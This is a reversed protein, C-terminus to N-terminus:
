EGVGLVRLLMVADAAHGDAAQATDAGQKALHEIDAAMARLLEDTAGTNDTCTDASQATARAADLDIRLRDIHGATRLRDAAIRRETQTRDNQAEITQDAQRIAAAAQTQTAQLQAAAQADRQRQQGATYARWHSACLALLVLALATIRAQISM